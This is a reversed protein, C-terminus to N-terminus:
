RGQATRRRRADAVRRSSDSEDVASSRLGDGM